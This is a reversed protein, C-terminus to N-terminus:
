FLFNMLLKNYHKSIKLHIVHTTNWYNRKNILLFKNTESIFEWGVNQYVQVLFFLKILWHTYVDRPM